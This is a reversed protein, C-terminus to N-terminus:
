NDTKPTNGKESKEPFVIGIGIIVYGGIILFPSLNSALNQGAPDTKTLVLFGLVLVGVGALIVKKGLASIGIIRINKAEKKERKEKDRKGM